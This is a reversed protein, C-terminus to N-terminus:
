DRPSDPSDEYEWLIRPEAGSVDLETVETRDDEFAFLKRAQEESEALVVQYHLGWGGHSILFVRM